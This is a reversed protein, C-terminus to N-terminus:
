GDVPILSWNDAVSFLRAKAAPQDYDILSVLAPTARLVAVERGTPHPAFAGKGSSLWIRRDLAEIHSEPDVERVHAAMSLGRVGSSDDQGIAISVRPDRLINSMKQSTRSVLFHLALGDALYNVMSAHPWGDSRVTALTMLHNAVLIAAVRAAPTDNPGPNITPAPDLSM